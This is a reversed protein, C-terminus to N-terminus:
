NPKVGVGVPSDKGLDAARLYGLYRERIHRVYNVPESGRVYGFRAKNAYAPKALLLMAEEVNDFWRNPDKGLQRALRRADRVHGAGANYAALIFYLREELPLAGPFRAHLWDMYALGAAIGQDPEYLNDYGFQKATRPMVQMLGKAGAFSKAKPDFRSEQYIQATVLRWDLTYKQAHQKIKDDFPSLAGDAIVRYKKHRQINKSSAFYKNFTVNYFLGRYEKKIFANLKELLDPQDLRLGWAIDVDETLNLNVHINDHYSKEIAALHSDAITFDYDRAALGAILTETAVGPKQEIQVDIGGQRLAQLRKLYVTQPNVAVRRGELQKLSTIQLGDALGILQERIRMYRRSFVIGRQQRKQTVTLSAAIVDGEGSQLAQLLEDIDNKVVVELRLHHRKSFQKMLEYDFGMLEGRWMFYSAPNNLTLIRLKKASKIQEWDRHAQYNRSSQIHESVLFENLRSRLEPNTRRVAWAIKRHKKLVPGKALSPYQPLLLNAINSDVVTAEVDGDAVRQLMQSGSVQNEAVVIQLQPNNKKIHQLTELYATGAPVTVKLPMDGLSSVVTEKRTILVEDVTALAASFAAVIKRERTVSLNTVAMDGQGLNLAELLGDFGDVFVWQPTLGLSRVFREALEQYEQVPMGSRPLEDQSDLRPALLRIVGRESLQPLDGTDIYDPPAAPEPPQTNNAESNLPGSPANSTVSEPPSCAAFLLFIVLLWYTHRCCRTGRLSIDSFRYM